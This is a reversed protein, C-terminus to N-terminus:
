PKTETPKDAGATFGKLAAKLNSEADILFNASTVVREGAKLGELIEVLGDGRLGLKVPRPEFRGEGRDVIVVQRTGSDIVASAPVVLRAADGAGADIEVEAFMEHKIQHEPNAIEIRVKATRTAMELEHLVFTVRGEFPKAPFARFTAKAPAGVKVSGIDQEAVDAIVWIKSLDTLRFMEQGARVMQGAIVNKQMVVGTVPSPWDISMLPNPNTRLQNLVAEPLDFNKLRQMAGPNNPAVRYDVQASVIQPSYVRFLPEGAQVHKGTEDAYLAEIFGDARLTITRLTREDPKAIGPARVPRTLSRMEATETRVGSRQVRDLSVKITTGDDEEGEYVPIYDMGMWDKKPVPSTDPLGMPNRYYLIRRGAKAAPAAPKADKFDAEQDEYVPVYDRGDATKKPGPSFDSKGDPDKWYLVAREARTGNGAQKPQPHKWLTEPLPWTGSGARYGAIASALAVAAAAGVWMTTRM